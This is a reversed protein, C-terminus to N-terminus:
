MQVNFTSFYCLQKPVEVIIRLEPFIRVLKIVRLLRLLRIMSMLLSVNPLHFLFVICALVVGFDFMNWSDMFFREPHRGEAVIKLAVEITFMAIAFNDLGTVVASSTRMGPRDLQTQVGVLVAAFFVVGAM